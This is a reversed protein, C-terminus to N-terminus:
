AGYREGMWQEVEAPDFRMRGGWKYKPLGEAVRYRWWRESYGYLEILESLPVLRRARRRQAPFAVVTALEGSV